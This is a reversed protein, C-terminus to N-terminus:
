PAFNVLTLRVTAGTDGKVVAFVKDAALIETIPLDPKKDHSMLLGIETGEGPLSSGIHILVKGQSRMQALLSTVGTTIQAWDTTVEVETTSTAM